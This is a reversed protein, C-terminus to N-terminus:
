NLYCSLITFVDSSGYNQQRVVESTVDVILESSNLDKEGLM